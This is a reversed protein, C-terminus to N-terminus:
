DLTRQTLVHRWPIFQFPNWGRHDIRLCIKTTKLIKLQKSGKQLPPKNCRFFYFRPTVMDGIHIQFRPTENSKDIITHQKSIKTEQKSSSRISNTQKSERNIKLVLNLM